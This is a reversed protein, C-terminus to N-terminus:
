VPVGCRCGGTLPALFRLLARVQEELSGKFTELLSLPLEDLDASCHYTGAGAKWADSKPVTEEWWRKWRRVTRPSVGVAEQLVRMRTPTLGCRLAAILVVIVALYLKPGLFRLSPPTVRIRSDENSCCFSHRVCLQPPLPEKAGKPHRQYNASHLEGKCGPEPCKRARVEQAIDADYKFLAEIFARDNLLAQTSLNM